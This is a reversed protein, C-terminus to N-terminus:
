RGKDNDSPSDARIMLLGAMIGVPCNILGAALVALFMRFDGLQWFIAISIALVALICCVLLAALNITRSTGAVSFMAIFSFMGVVWMPSDHDASLETLVAISSWGLLYALIGGGQLVVYYATGRAM